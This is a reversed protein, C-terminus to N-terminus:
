ATEELIGDSDRGVALARVPGGVPNSLSDDTTTM